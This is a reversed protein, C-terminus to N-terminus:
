IALGVAVALGIILFVILYIPDFPDGELTVADEQDVITGGLAEAELATQAQRSLGAYSEFTFRRKLGPDVECLALWRQAERNFDKVNLDMM